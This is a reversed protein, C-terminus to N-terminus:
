PKQHEVFGDTPDEDPLANNKTSDKCAKRLREALSLTSSLDNAAPPVSAPSPGHPMDSFFETVKLLAFAAKESNAELEADTAEVLNMESNQVTSSATDAPTGASLPVTSVAEPQGLLMEAAHAVKAAWDLGAIRQLQETYPTLEFSQNAAQSAILISSDVIVQRHASVALMEDDAKILLEASLKEDPNLQGTLLAHREIRVLDATLIPPKFNRAFAQAAAARGHATETLRMDIKEIALKLGALCNAMYADLAVAKSIFDPQQGIDILARDAGSVGAFELARMFADLEAPPLDNAAKLLNQAEDAAAEPM